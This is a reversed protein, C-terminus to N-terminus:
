PNDTDAYRSVNFALDEIALNLVRECGPTYTLAHFQDTASGRVVVGVSDEEIQGEIRARWTATGIEGTTSCVLDTIVLTLSRDLNQIVASGCLQSKVTEDLPSDLKLGLNGAGDIPVIDITARDDVVKVVCDDPYNPVDLVVAAICGYLLSAAAGIILTRAFRMVDGTNVAMYM